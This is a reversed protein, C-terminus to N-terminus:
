LESVLASPVPSIKKRENQVLVRHHRAALIASATTKVAGRRSNFLTSAHRVLEERRQADCFLERCTETLDDASRVQIVAQGRLFIKLLQRFNEMHPGCIVPVGAAVPELFNQGGRGRLSKGIFCVTAVAYLQALEGTTDLLCVEPANEAWSARSASMETRRVVRWGQDRVRRLVAPTREVHRLALFLRLHPHTQRLVRFTRLLDEDEGPQLSGGFLVPDDGWGLALRLDRAPQQVAAVAAVDFKMSGTVFLAHPPFGALRFRLRDEEEQLGVWQLCSLVPGFWFRLARYRRASRDSLRANAVWVPVGKRAAQWILNPWIESEMLVILSPDVRHILEAMKRPFDAPKYLVVTPEGGRLGKEALRRGTSTTTTLFVPLDPEAARMAQMLVQALRVEGVSVAHIWVPRDLTMLERWQEPSFWGLREHWGYQFDGRRVMRWLFYPWTVLLGIFFLLHYACRILFRKM